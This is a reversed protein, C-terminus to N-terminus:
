RITFEAGDPDLLRVVDTRDNLRSAGLAILREAEALPDSAALDFRQRGRGTRPADPWTDWALKTGGAPSQIALQAGEDWVVSWGLADLWFSAATRTGDCTVEGLPGCGALYEDEPRMLCFENGAPDTLYIDRGIPLPRTGPRDGGRAMATQVSQRQNELSSSTVHVHLRNRESTETTATVFRLGVHTDDGPVLVGGPEEVIERGLLDAWFTGVAAPDHADFSVAVLRVSM